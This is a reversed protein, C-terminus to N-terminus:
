GLQPFGMWQNMQLDVGRSLRGLLAPRTDTQIYTQGCFTKRIQIFNPIYTHFSHHATTHRTVHDLTLILTVPGQFKYIRGSEFETEEGM